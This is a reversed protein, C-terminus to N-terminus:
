TYMGSASAGPQGGLRPVPYDAWTRLAEDRADEDSARGAEERAPLPARCTPCTHNKALWKRVCEEHFTHECSLKVAFEGAIMEELCVSCSTRHDRSRAHGWLRWRHELGREGSPASPASAAGAEDHEDAATADAATARMADSRRLAAGLVDGDAPSVMLSPLELDGGASATDSMSFPWKKGETQVVVAAAAGAQQAHRVKEVFSCGGRWMVVLCGRCEDANALPTSGDAPQALVLPAKVGDESLFTGFTSGTGRMEASPVGCAAAAEEWGAAASAADADAATTADAATADARRREAAAALLRRKECPADEDAGGAEAPGPAVRLLVHPEIKVLPLSALVEKDAPRAETGLGEFLEAPVIQQMVEAAIAMTEADPTGGVGLGVGVAAGGVEVGRAAVGAPLNGGSGSALRLVGGCMPCAPTSLGGTSPLTLGCEECRYPSQAQAQAQSAFYAPGFDGM